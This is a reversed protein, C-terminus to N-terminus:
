NEDLFKYLAGDKRSTRMSLLAKFLRKSKSAYQEMDNSARERAAHTSLSASRQPESPYRKRSYNPSISRKLASGSRLLSLGFPSTSRKETKNNPSLTTFLFNGQRSVSQPSQMMGYRGRIYSPSEKITARIANRFRRSYEGASFSRCQYDSRSLGMGDTTEVDTFIYRKHHKPTEMVLFQQYLGGQKIFKECAKIRQEGCSLQLEMESIEGVKEDLFCNVKYAVSGLHDVTNVLAKIVYDKLTDVVMQNQEEKGHSAEFYEAASYLQKRLNKLDRLNDSFHLTQHMFFEDHNSAQEPGSALTASTM